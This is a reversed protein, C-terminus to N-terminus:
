GIPREGNRSARERLERELVLARAADAFLESVLRLRAPESRLELLEQKRGVPLEVRAALEFSLQPSRADPDEIEVEALKAVRRFAEVAKSSTTADPASEDDSLPVVKATHFSRGETLDALLFRDRGEVVINLRGDDFQELVTVIRARTGVRRLGDEDVLLMGFEREDDLCEGVLEKYRPEFIHLPIRETPLLVLGLPFLGLDDM